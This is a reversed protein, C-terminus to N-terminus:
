VVSQNVAIKSDSVHHEVCLSSALHHELVSGLNRPEALRNVVVCTAEYEENLQLQAPLGRVEVRIKMRDTDRADAPRRRETNPRAAGAGASAASATSGLRNKVWARMMTPLNKTASYFFSIEALNAGKGGLIQRMSTDGDTGSKGFNYVWKTM